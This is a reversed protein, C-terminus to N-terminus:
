DAIKQSFRRRLSSLSNNIGRKLFLSPILKYGYKLVLMDMGVSRRIDKPHVLPFNLEYTQINANSDTIDKTHTAEPGFGINTVLNERPTCCLGDREWVNYLMQFDWTDIKGESVGNLLRSWYNRFIWGPQIKSLFAKKDLSNWHVIDRDYTEWTSRWSAWGWCHFYKSFFYSDNLRNGKNTLCNYGSISLIRDDNKYRDLLEDCFSFFSVNPLCDDELIIGKEEHAFYWSIASSVAKKCGFNEDRFLKHVTCPWDVHDLIWKRVEAVQENEGAKYARPGDSAIYLREPKVESIVKFVRKTTDLRNFVLFLIPSKVVYM